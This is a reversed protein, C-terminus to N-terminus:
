LFYKYCTKIEVSVSPKSHHPCSRSAMRVTPISSIKVPAIPAIAAEVTFVPGDTALGIGVKSLTMKPRIRVSWANNMASSTKVAM